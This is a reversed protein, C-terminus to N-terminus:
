PCLGAWLIAGVTTGAPSHGRGLTWPSLGCPIRQPGTLPVQPPPRGLLGRATPDASVDYKQRKLKEGYEFKDTELKYLTDWLEKAKDRPLHCFHATAPYVRSPLAWAM